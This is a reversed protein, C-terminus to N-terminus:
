PHTYGNGINICINEMGNTYDIFLDSGGQQSPGFAPGSLSSQIIATTNSSKLTFKHNNTLSFIFSEKNPDTESVGNKTQNWPIPTYGGIKYGFETEILM